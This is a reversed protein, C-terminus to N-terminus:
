KVRVTRPTGLDLIDGKPSVARVTVQYRGPKLRKGNVRGDWRVHGRGKKFRGLPVRGVPELTPVTKGFLKHSGAIRQVLIGVGSAQALEFQVRGPDVRTFLFLSKTYLSLNSGRTRATQAGLDAGAPDVLTQTQSDWAFIRDHGDAGQRIFGVYRGDPTFAPRTESAGTNVTAPLLTPTGPFAVPDAPRFAIDAQQSGTIPTQSFLVTPVGGPSGIAPHTYLRDPRALPTSTKGDALRGLILEDLTGQRSEVYAVLGGGLNPEATVGNPETFSYPPTFQAHALPALTTLTLSPFGGQFLEGTAVTSGDPSITPSIQLNSSQEFGSFLDTVTGSPLAITLIRTAGNENRQLALRSGDASVSPHREDGPTNVSAPLTARAGTSLDFHFVDTDTRGAVAGDAVAFIDARAGAPALALMVITGAAVALRM